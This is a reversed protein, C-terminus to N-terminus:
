PMRAARGAFRQRQREAMWLSMDWADAVPQRTYPLTNLYPPPGFEPTLTSLPVGASQQAQWIASWWREHAALEGAWEPARPDNVQPGQAHGVRAHIHRVRPTIAALAAGQDELLRECVVVWHSLDACLSLGQHENVLAVTDRPNFFLRGRHTEHTVLVGADAEMLRVERLFPHAASADWLDVGSHANIFVPRLPLAATLQERFSQAHEQPTGGVHPWNTVIQAVWALGLEDLKARFATREEVPPPMGEVGAYGAAAVRPLWHRWGGDLGWLHRYVALEM